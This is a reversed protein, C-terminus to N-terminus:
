KYEAVMQILKNRDWLVIGNQRALAIASETFYNNTIVIGVHCQYFAKGAFVEQVAKNGVASSYCKCQFGYKIGDKYAIIDIGQDGSGQTVLVDEYGRNSLLRACFDEFQYGDMNDITLQSADPVTETKRSAMISRRINLSYKHEMSNATIALEAFADHIRYSHRIGYFGKGKLASILHTAYDEQCVHEVRKVEVLIEKIDDPVYFYIVDADGSCSCSITSSSRNDETTFYVTQLHEDRSLDLSFNTFGLEDLLNNYHDYARQWRNQRAQSLQKRQESIWDQQQKLWEDKNFM